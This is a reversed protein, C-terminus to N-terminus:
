VHQWFMHSQQEEGRRHAVCDLEEVPEIARVAAFNIEDFPALPLDWEGIAPHRIMKEVLQQHIHGLPIVRCALRRGEDEGEIAIFTPAHGLLQLPEVEHRWRLFGSEVLLAVLEFPVLAHPWFELLHQAAADANVM